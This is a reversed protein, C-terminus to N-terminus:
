ENCGAEEFIKILKPIQMAFFDVMEENTAWDNNHALGCEYLFAHIIEHRLVKRKYAEPNLLTEKTIEFDNLLIERKCWECLGNADAEVCRKQNPENIIKWDEGLIKIKEKFM